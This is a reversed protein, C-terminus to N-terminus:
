FDLATQLPISSIFSSHRDDHSLSLYNIVSQALHYSFMPPVANGIQNFCSTESGVFEYWSPFSQLRAAENVTLRRRRGDSLRIRQMDSTAGSLNRCTLTRAPRDLHLDRPNVCKSAKEYRAIYADQSPTLFRVDNPISTALRGLAEGASLKRPLENPYQFGGRHGVVILRERNQPVDFKVANLLKVEIIYNDIERLSTIVEELYWRNKYLLGRVNEFIFLDPKTQEIASLFIPFGDRSDKLGLQKGRVSFPQCPPGGIVINANPFLYDPTLTILECNGKLNKNYTACSDSNQEFGLTEYGMSEFGLALGGCGAFLDLVLENKALVPKLKKDLEKEYHM